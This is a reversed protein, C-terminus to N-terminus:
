EELLEEPTCIIPTKIGLEFNIDEIIRQVHANVIHTFNWSAIYDIGNLVAIWPFRGLEGDNHTEKTNKFLLKGNTDYIFLGQAKGQAYESETKAEIVSVTTASLSLL